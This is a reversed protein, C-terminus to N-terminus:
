MRRSFSGETVSWCVPGYEAQIAGQNGRGSLDWGETVRLHSQSASHLMLSLFTKAMLFLLLCKSSDLPAPPTQSNLSLFRLNFDQGIKRAPHILSRILVYRHGQLLTPVTLPFLISEQSPFYSLWYLVQKALVLVDTQDGLGIYFLGMTHKYDWHQWLCTFSLGTEFILTSLFQPLYRLNVKPM